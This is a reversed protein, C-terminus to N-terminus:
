DHLGFETAMDLWRQVEGRAIRKGAAFGAPSLSFDRYIHHIIYGAACLERFGDLFRVTVEPNHSDRFAITREDTVEVYVALLRAAADFATNVAKLEIIGRDRAAFLIARAEGSLSSLPAVDDAAQNVDAALESTGESPSAPGFRNRDTWAVSCIQALAVLVPAGNGLAEWSGSLYSDVPNLNKTKM